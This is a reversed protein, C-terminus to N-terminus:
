DDASKVYIQGGDVRVAFTRLAEVAPSDVAAGSRMDFSGQHLPCVVNNGELWGDSLCAQAHTCADHVAFIGEKTRGICVPEGRAEVRLLQRDPDIEDVHGVFTWDDSM